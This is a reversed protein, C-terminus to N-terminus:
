PGSPVAREACHAVGAAPVRRLAEDALAPQGLARAARALYLSARWHDLGLEIARSFEGAALAPRGQELLVLGSWLRLYADEPHRRRYHLIGGTSASSLAPSSASIAREADLLEEPQIATLSREFHM